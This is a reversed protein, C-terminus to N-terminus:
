RIRYNYITPAAAQTRPDLTVLSVIQGRKVSNEVNAVDRASRVERNNIRILVVGSPVTEAAPGFPDVASIVVHTRVPLGLRVASVGDLDRVVFGLTPSDDSQRSSSERALQRRQVFEELLVTKELRKGYRILTINIRDGPQRLAVRSQLDTVTHIAEGELAVIVDGMEIGADDAAEGPTVSAIEAGTVAPLRYLEADAANVDQITVGLRPRHVVGDEILDEAVRVALNIPIAFGAGSFYGTRSEIASNIGVVRGMLDVLPGGSNGPNIAADTQIFAELSASRASGDALIGISRGTASVIGATVTFELGLPNGLALVWDGVNLEDSDGLKAAPFREGGMPEIRIVAVDTNPDAGVLRASYERGDALSVTVREANEIVHNNTLIHGGEDLLVGSGTGLSRREGNGDPTPFPLVHPDSLPARTTVKVRVVAPLARSAANRFAASLASAGTTDPSADGLIGSLRVVTMENPAPAGDGPRCGSGMTALVVLAAAGRVRKRRSM